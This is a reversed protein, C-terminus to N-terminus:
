VLFLIACWLIICSPQLNHRDNGPIKLETALQRVFEPAFSVKM